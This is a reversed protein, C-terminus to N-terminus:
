RNKMFVAVTMLLAIPLMIKGSSIFRNTWLDEGLDYFKKPKKFFFHLSSNLLWFAFFVLLYIIVSNFSM